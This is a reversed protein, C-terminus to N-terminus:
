RQTFPDQKKFAALVKTNASTRMRQAPPPSGDPAAGTSDGATGKTGKFRFAFAGREPDVTVNLKYRREDEAYEGSCRLTVRSRKKCDVERLTSWHVADALARQM